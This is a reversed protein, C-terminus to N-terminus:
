GQPLRPAPTGAGEEETAPPDLYRKMARALLAVDSGYLGAM